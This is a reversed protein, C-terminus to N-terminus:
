PKILINLIVVCIRVKSKEPKQTQQTNRFSPRYDAATELKSVAQGEGEAM